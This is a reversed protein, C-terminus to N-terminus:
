FAIYIYPHGVLIISGTIAIQFNIKENKHWVYNTFSPSYGFYITRDCAVEKEKIKISLDKCIKKVVDANGKILVHKFQGDFNKYNIKEFYVFTKGNINVSRNDKPLNKGTNELSYCFESEAFKAFYEYFVDNNQLFICFIAFFMLFFIYIRKM